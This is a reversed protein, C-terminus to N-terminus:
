FMYWTLNIGPKLGFDLRSTDSDGEKGMIYNIDLGVNGTLVVNKVLEAHAGFIINFEIMSDDEGFSNYVIQGGISTPVFPTGLYYDFGIGLSLATYNDDGDVDGAPTSVTTAGHHYFGIIASLEMSPNLKFSLNFRGQGGMAQGLDVGLGMFADGSGKKSSKKEAKKSSKAPAEDEEEDEEVYKAKKEVKAPAEDEEYEDDDQAYSYSCLAMATLAALFMKKM